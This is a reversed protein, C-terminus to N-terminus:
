SIKTLETKFIKWWGPIDRIGKFFLSCKAIVWHGNMQTRWSPRLDICFSVSIIKSFSVSGWFFCWREGVIIDDNRHKTLEKLFKDRSWASYPNISVINIVFDPLLPIHSLIFIQQLAILLLIIKLSYYMERFENSKLVAAKLLTGEFSIGLPQVENQCPVSKNQKLVIDVRRADWCGMWAQFCKLGLVLGRFFQWDDM